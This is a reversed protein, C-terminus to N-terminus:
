LVGLFIQLTPILLNMARIMVTIIFLSVLTCALGYYLATSDPFAM